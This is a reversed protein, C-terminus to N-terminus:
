PHALTPIYMITSEYQEADFQALCRFDEVLRQLVEAAGVIRIMNHSDLTAAVRNDRTAQVLQFDKVQGIEHGGGLIDRVDALYHTLFMIGIHLIHDHHTATLCGDSSCEGQRVIHVELNNLAIGVTAFAEVLQQCIGVGHNDVAIAAVEREQLFFADFM